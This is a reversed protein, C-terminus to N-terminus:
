PSFVPGSALGMLTLSFSFPAAQTVGRERSYSNTRRAFVHDAVIFDNQPRSSVTGRAAYLTIDRYRSIEGRPLSWSTSECGHKNCYPYLFCRSCRPRHITNTGERHQKCNHVCSFLHCLRPKSRLPYTTTHQRVFLFLRVDSPRM